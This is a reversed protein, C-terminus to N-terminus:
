IERGDEFSNNKWDLGKVNAPLIYKDSSRFVRIYLDRCVFM